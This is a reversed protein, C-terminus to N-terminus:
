SAKCRCGDRTVEASVNITGQLIRTIEGSQSKIEVDYVLSAVPYKETISNPFRLLMRGEDAEISIRPDDSTSSLEDVVTCAGATRRVQMRASYGGLQIAEGTSDQLRLPFTYDSGQNMEFNYVNSAM